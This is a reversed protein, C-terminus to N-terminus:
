SRTGFKQFKFFIINQIKHLIETEALDQSSEMLTFGM